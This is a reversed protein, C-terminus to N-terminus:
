DERRGSCEAPQRQSPATAGPLAERAGAGQGAKAGGRRRRPGSTPDSSARASLDSRPESRLEPTRRAPPPPHKPAPADLRLDM